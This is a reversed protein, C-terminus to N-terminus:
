LFHRGGDVNLTQGTLFAADDSAVFFVAGVVDEPLEDRQLSRSQRQMEVVSTPMAEIANPTITLGPAVQNVTIGYDGLENALTRTLGLIGGKSAVYASQQRTGVFLTGSGINVIRGKGSEKMLPLLARVMLFTGTLNVAIVRRWVEPTMEEFAVLPFIAACNILVDVTGFLNQTTKALAAISAESSLDAAVAHLSPHQGGSAAADWRSRWGDLAEQSLDTAIVTDGNTL